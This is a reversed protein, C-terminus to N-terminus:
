VEAGVEAGLREVRPGTTEPLNETLWDTAEHVISVAITPEIFILPLRFSIEARDSNIENALVIGLRKQSAATPKYIRESYDLTRSHRRQFRVSGDFSGLMIEMIFNFNRM